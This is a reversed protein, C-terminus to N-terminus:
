WDSMSLLSFKNTDTDAFDGEFMEELGKYTMDLTEAWFDCLAPQIM